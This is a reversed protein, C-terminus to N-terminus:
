PREVAVHSEGDHFRLRIRDGIALQSKTMIVSEEKEAFPICYGRKLLHYPDVSELHHTLRTTSARLESLLRKRERLAATLEKTAQGLGRRREGVIREPAMSRTLAELQERRYRIALSRREILAVYTQHAEDIRQAYPALLRDPESLTPHSAIHALREQARSLKSRLASAIREKYGAIAEILAELEGVALEAAASPTPARVDAAFDALSTDTEHGVASITPLASAAIARAVIETNFPWLDELSGGGRGIILLDAIAGKNAIAIAKAIEEAAGDGQVKVPLLIINVGKHRRRLVNIIDQIVAGTPSTIVGIRKPFPPLQRKQVFLGERTLREKLEHLTLLLDGVGEYSLERCIVQYSGRPMYLSLEGRVVVTDGDKPRRSLHAASGKFLAVSLTAGADKLTFYIHGSSQARLNTVEGRVAVFPFALELRQKIARTLQSVSWTQSSHSMSGGM